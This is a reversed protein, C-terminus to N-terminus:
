VSVRSYLDGGGAGNYTYSHNVDLLAMIQYDGPPATSFPGPFALADPDVEVPKGPELNHVEIGTLFVSGPNLFDPEIMELSKTQNTMFILLRGAVPVPALAANISVRFRIRDAANAHTPQASAFAFVAFAFIIAKISLKQRRMLKLGKETQSSERRDLLWSEQVQISSYLVPLPLSRTVGANHLVTIFPLGAPM